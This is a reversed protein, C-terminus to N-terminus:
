DIEDEGSGSCKYSSMSGHQREYELRYHNLSRARRDALAGMNYHVGQSSKMLSLEIELQVIRDLMKAMEAKLRHLETEM